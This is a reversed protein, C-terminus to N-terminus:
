RKSVKRGTAVLEGGGAKYAATDRDLVIRGNYSAANGGFTERARQLATLIGRDNPCHGLNSRTGDHRLAFIFHADELPGDIDVTAGCSCSVQRYELAPVLPRLMDVYLGAVGAEEADALVVRKTSDEFADPDNIIAEVAVQVTHRSAM